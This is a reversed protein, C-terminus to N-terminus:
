IVLVRIVSGSIRSSLYGIIKFVNQKRGPDPPFPITKGRDMYVMDLIFVTPDIIKKIDIM